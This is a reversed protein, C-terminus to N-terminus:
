PGPATGYTPLAGQQFQANWVDETSALVARSFDCAKANDPSAECVKGAAASGSGQEGGALAQILQQKLSSPLVFYGIAAVAALVLTGKLGILRTISSLAQIPLGGGGGGGRGRDEFNTSRRRGELDM